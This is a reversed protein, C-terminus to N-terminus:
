FLLALPYSLKELKGPLVAAEESTLFEPKRFVNAIPLRLRDKIWKSNLVAIIDDGIKFESQNTSTAIIKGVAIQQLKSSKRSKVNHLLEICQGAPTSVHTVRVDVFDDTLLMRETPSGKICYTEDAESWSLYFNEQKEFSTKTLAM